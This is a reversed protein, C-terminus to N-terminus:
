VPGEISSKCVIHGRKGYISKEWLPGCSTGEDAELRQKLIVKEIFDERAVRKFTYGQRGVACGKQKIRKWLM